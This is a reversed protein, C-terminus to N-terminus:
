FFVKAVEGEAIIKGEWLKIHMGERLSSRALELNSFKINIKYTEGLHFDLEGNPLFRCDFAVDGAILPCGFRNGLIPGTRGGEEPLLFRVKIEADPKM